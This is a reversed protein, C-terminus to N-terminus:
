APFAWNKGITLEQKNAVGHVDVQTALLDLLSLLSVRSIAHV